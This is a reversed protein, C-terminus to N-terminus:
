DFELDCCSSTNCFQCLKANSFVTSSAPGNPLTIMKKCICCIFSNALGLNDKFGHKICRYALKGDSFNFSGCIFCSNKNLSHSGLNGIKTSCINCMKLNSKDNKIPLYKCRLKNFLFARYSANIYMFADRTKLFVALEKKKSVLLLHHCLELTSFYRYQSINSYYNILKDHYSNITDINFLFMEDIVKKVRKHKIEVLYSKQFFSFNLFIKLSRSMQAWELRNTDFGISKLLLYIENEPLGNRSIGILCLVEKIINNPFDMNIRNIINKILESLNFPLNQIKKDITTYEGFIRLEYCVFSLWLPSLNNSSKELILRMQNENLKKNYKQLYKQIFVRSIQDDFCNLDVQVFNEFILEVKKSSDCSFILKLNNMNKFHEFWNFYDNSEFDYGDIVVIIEKENQEKLIDLLKIFSELTLRSDHDLDFPLELTINGSGEIGTVVLFNYKNLYNLALTMEHEYGVFFNTKEVIFLDHASQEEEFFVDKKYNDNEDTDISENNENQYIDELYPYSKEISNKLFELAREGFEKFGKLKVKKRGTTEDIGDYDCSYHFVQDPHYLKLKKKLADLQSKSLKNSEFFKDKYENPIQTLNDRIFFCANKNRCRLAGHLFEMHTISINPVWDYEKTINFPLEEYKPVWGYKDGLMGIFFPHGDNEEYCRDIETLCTLITDETTSDSPVGWRLDCEILDLNRKFCWERLEPFVVKVLHERENFFDTFTSSVFVRIAKSRKLTILDSTVRDSSLSKRSNYNSIQQHILWWTKDSQKSNELVLDNSKLQINQRFFHKIQDHKIKIRPNSM